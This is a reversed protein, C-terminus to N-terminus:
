LEFADQILRMQRGNPTLDIALVDFRVQVDAKRFRTLYWSALRALQNKKRGDVAEEPLGFSTDKRTKVEVFVLVGDHKAVIDIEGFPSRVNRELIRYGKKKLYAEALSEGLKGTAQASPKPSM